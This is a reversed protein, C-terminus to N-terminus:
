CIRYCRRIIILYSVANLRFLVYPYFINDIYNYLLPVKYDTIGISLTLTDSNGDSRNSIRSSALRFKSKNYLRKNTSKKDSWYKDIKSEDSENPQCMKRNAEIFIRKKRGFKKVDFDVLVDEERLGRSTPLLSINGFM